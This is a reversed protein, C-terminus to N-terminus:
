NKGSSKKEVCVSRLFLEKGLKTIDPYNINKRKILFAVLPFSLGSYSLPSSVESFSKGVEKRLHM